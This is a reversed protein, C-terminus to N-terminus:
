RSTNMSVEMGTTGGVVIDVRGDSDMDGMQLARTDSLM